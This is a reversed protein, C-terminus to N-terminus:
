VSLCVCLRVIRSVSESWGYAPGLSFDLENIIGINQIGENFDTAWMRSLQRPNLAMSLGHWPRSGILPLDLWGSARGCPGSWVPWVPWVSWVPWVPLVPRVVRAVRAQGCPGPWGPARVCPVCPGCPGSWVARGGPLGAVCAQGCLGCLTAAPAVSDIIISAVL